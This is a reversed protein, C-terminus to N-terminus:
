LTELVTVREPEELMPGIVAMVKRREESNAWQEWDDRSAWTSIVVLHHPNKVNRWSEGSIYGTKQLAELRMRRLSQHFEGLMAASVRREILVRVM